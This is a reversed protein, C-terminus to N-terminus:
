IHLYATLSFRGLIAKFTDSDIEVVDRDPLDHAMIILTNDDKTLEGYAFLSINIFTLGDTEIFTGRGVKNICYLDQLSTKYYKM